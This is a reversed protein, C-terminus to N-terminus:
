AKNILSLRYKCLRIVENRISPIKHIHFDTHSPYGAYMNVLLMERIKCNYKIELIQKYLNITVVFRNWESDVLKEVPFKAHQIGKKIITNKRKWEVLVFDKKNKHRYIMDVRGVLKLEEHFIDWDNRYAVWGRQNAYKQFRRFFYYEMPAIYAPIINNVDQYLRISRHLKNDLDNKNQESKNWKKLIYKESKNYYKPHKSYKRNNMLRRLTKEVPFISFFISTFDKILEYNNNVENDIIYKTDVNIIRMDRPHRNLKYLPLKNRPLEEVNKIIKNLSKKNKKGYFTKKYNIIVM